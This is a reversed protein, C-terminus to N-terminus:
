PTSRASSTRPPRSRGPPRRSCTWAAHRRRRRQRAPVGAVGLAPRLRAGGATSRAKNINDVRAPGPSPATRSRRGVPDHRDRRPLRRRPVRRRARAPPERHRDVRDEVSCAAPRRARRPGRRAATTTGTEVHQSATDAMTDEQGEAPDPQSRLEVAAAPLRARRHRDVDRLEAIEHVHRVDGDWEDRAVVCGGRAPACTAASSPRASTRARSAPPARRVLAARRRPGRARAHDPLPRAAVGAHDVTVVLDDLEAGDLAGRDIVERWGGLDRARSATRSSPRPAQPGDATSCPRPRPANRSPQRANPRNVRAAGHRPRCTRSSASRTAACGAPTRTSRRRTPRPARDEADARLLGDLDFQSTPAARACTPTTRSRADRDARAVAAALADVLARNQEAVNAYTLSDGTPADIAWAPVRFIRAVERARCSASSSSSRTTPASRRGAHVQHRRDRGRRPAHEAVGRTGAAALARPDARRAERSGSPVTLVGSPRSGQETFAKARSSCARPSASRSGASRSRPCAACGTSREHGQHAPHRRARARHPGQDHRAPLRDAPRAARGPRQEPHDARAARDRRRARYKGVFAEGYVNLHVM